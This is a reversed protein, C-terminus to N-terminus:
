GDWLPPNRGDAVFVALVLASVGLLILAYQWKSVMGHSAAMAEEAYRQLRSDITTYIKLGDTYLDYPEGNPPVMNPMRVSESYFSGMSDAAKQEIQSSFM